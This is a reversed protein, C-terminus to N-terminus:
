HASVSSAFTLPLEVAFTTGKNLESQVSIQGAHREVCDKVISLGLGTGKVHKANPARHFPDFLKPLSEQPIGIGHDEIRIIIKNGSASLSTCIDTQEPSYKIANAILNSIIQRILKPDAQVSAALSDQLKLTHADNDILRFEEMIASILEGVNTPEPAYNAHGSEMKALMLMDDLMQILLHVAGDIRDLYQQKREPGLRDEYNRLIASSSLVSALPNRFDHSFMAILRSKLQRKEREDNLAVTLSDVYSQLQVDQAAKKSLRVRITDIVEAHTFPKTIYDDAGMNMGRRVADHDAAATLFVFPIQMLNPNSRVEILVEHGDVEPMDIDCVILHPTDAYISELGVRGNPAGNVEYGEFQLWDMVEERIQDEDEIVLIKVM